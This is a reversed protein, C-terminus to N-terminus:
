ARIGSTQGMLELITGWVQSVPIAYGMGEIETLSVKATNIGILQGDM